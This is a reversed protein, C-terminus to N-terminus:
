GIPYINERVGSFFVISMRILSAHVVVGGIYATLSLVPVTRTSSAARPRM